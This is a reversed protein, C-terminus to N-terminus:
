TETSSSSAPLFYLMFYLTSPMLIIARRSRKSVLGALDCSLDSDTDNPGCPPGIAKSSSTSFIDFTTSSFTSTTLGTGSSTDNSFVAIAVISPLFKTQFIPVSPAPSFCTRDTSPEIVTVPVLVM